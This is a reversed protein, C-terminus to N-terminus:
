KISKTPVNTGHRNHVGIELFLYYIIIICVKYNGLIHYVKIMVTSM